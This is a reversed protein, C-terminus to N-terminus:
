LLRLHSPDPPLSPLQTSKLEELQEAQIYGIRLHVQQLKAILRQIMKKSQHNEAALDLLTQKQVEILQKQDQDPFNATFGAASYMSKKPSVIRYVLLVLFSLVGFIAFPGILPWIISPKPPTIKKTAIKRKLTKQILNKKPLPSQRKVESKESNVFKLQVQTAKPKLENKAIPTVASPTIPTVAPAEIVEASKKADTPVEAVAEVLHVTELPTEHPAEQPAELSETRPPVCRPDAHFNRESKLIECAAEQLKAVSKQARPNEPFKQAIINALDFCSNASGNHCLIKLHQLQARYEESQHRLVM